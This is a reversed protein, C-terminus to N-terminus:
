YKVIWCLKGCFVFLVFCIMGFGYVIFLGLRLRKYKSTIRTAAIMPIHILLLIITLDLQGPEAHEFFDIKLNDKNIKM